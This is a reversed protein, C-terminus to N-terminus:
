AERCWWLVRGIIRLSDQVTEDALNLEMPAYAERNDSILVIKGPKKDLRKVLISEDVGVAYIGGAIVDKLGQNILVMDGNEITPSMSDGSVTMLVMKSPCGKKRIWSSRFAFFGEVDADVELSGTGASLRAQVKPIFIPQVGDPPSGERPRRTSCISVPSTDGTKKESTDLVRRQQDGSLSIQPSMDGKIASTDAMRGDAYMSGVGQFLWMPNIGYVECIRTRITFRPMQGSLYNHLTRVTVGVKEAFDAPNDNGM